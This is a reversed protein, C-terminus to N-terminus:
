CNVIAGLGFTGAFLDKVYEELAMGMGNARNHSQYERALLTVPNRVLNEIADIVTGM